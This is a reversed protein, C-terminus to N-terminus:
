NLDRNLQLQDKTKSAHVQDLRLRKVSKTRSSREQGNEHANKVIESRKLVALSVIL